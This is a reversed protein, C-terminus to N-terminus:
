LSGNPYGCKLTGHVHLTEFVLVMIVANNYLSNQCKANPPMWFVQCICHIINKGFQLKIIESFHMTVGKQIGLASALNQKRQM